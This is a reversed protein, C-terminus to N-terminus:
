SFRFSELSTLSAEFLIKSAALTSCLYSNMLFLINATFFRMRPTKLLSKIYMKKVSLVCWFLSDSLRFICLSNYIIPSIEKTVNREQWFHFTTIRVDLNSSTNCIVVLNEDSRPIVLYMSIAFFKRRSLLLVSCWFFTVTETLIAKIM